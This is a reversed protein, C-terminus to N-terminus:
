LAQVDHEAGVRRALRGVQALDPQQDHERLRAAVHGGAEHRQPARHATSHASHQAPRATNHTSHAAFWRERGLFCVCWVGWWAGKVAQERAEAGAVRELGPAAAKRDLHCLHRRDDLPASPSKPTSRATSHANQASKKRAAVPHM